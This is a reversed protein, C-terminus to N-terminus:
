FPTPGQRTSYTGSMWNEINQKAQRWNKEVHSPAGSPPNVTFHPKRISEKVLEYGTRRVMAGKGINKRRPQNNFSEFPGRNDQKYDKYYKANQVPGSVSRLYNAVGPTPFLAKIDPRLDKEFGSNIGFEVIHPYPVRPDPLDMNEVDIGVELYFSKKENPDKEQKKYIAKFLSGTDIPTKQKLQEHMIKLFYPADLSAKKYVEPIDAIMQGAVTDPKLSRIMQDMMITANAGVVSRFTRAVNNGFYTEGKPIVRLGKGVLRGGTRRLFREGVGAVEGNDVERTLTNKLANFDGITRGLKLNYRNIKNWIPSPIIAQADQLAVSLTYIYSRADNLDQPFDYRNFDQDTFVLYRNAARMTKTQRFSRLSRGKMNQYVKNRSM